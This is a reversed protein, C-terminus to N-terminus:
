RIAAIRHTVDLCVVKSQFFPTGLFGGAWPGRIPDPSLEHQWFQWLSGVQVDCLDPPEPGACFRRAEPGSLNPM